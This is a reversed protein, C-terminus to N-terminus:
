HSATVNIFHELCYTTRAQTFSLLLFVLLHLSSQKDQTGAEFGTTIPWLKRRQAVGSSRLVQAPPATGCCFLVPVCFQQPSTEEVQNSSHRSQEPLLDSWALFPCFQPQRQERREGASNLPCQLANQSGHKFPSMLFSM